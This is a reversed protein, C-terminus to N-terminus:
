NSNIIQIMFILISQSQVKTNLYHTKLKKVENENFNSSDIIFTIKKSSSDIIGDLLEMNLFQIRPDGARGTERNVWGEKIAIRLRLIKNEELLHKYKL